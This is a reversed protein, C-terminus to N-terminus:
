RPFGMWPKLLGLQLFLAGMREVPLGMVTSFSGEVGEIFLAGIGQIAYSGAKDMPEHTGIYWRIQAETLPRFVVQATDVFSHVQDNRQLCFGTHVQHARGQILGLMRVADEADLPKNLTHHDVAVTTDAAMVWRDPNRGAVVEAKLEALRLVLDGPEEDLLPTEDVEPAQIEFPIRMAELWHRRRPSSSALILPKLAAEPLGPLTESM